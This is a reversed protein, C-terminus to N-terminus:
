ILKDFIQKIKLTHNKWLYNKESIKRATRGLKTREEPNNVLFDIASALQKINQQQVFLCARENKFMERIEPLDTAVIAKSALMFKIVSGPFFGSPEEFRYIGLCIDAASIYYELDVSKLRGLYLVPVKSAEILRQYKKIKAYSGGAIILILDSSKVINLSRLLTNLDHYTTLSGLYFLIKQDPLGHKKRVHHPDRSTFEDQCVPVVSIQQRSAGLCKLREQLVKTPVIMKDSFQIVQKLWEYGRTKELGSHKRSIRNNRLNDWLHEIQDEWFEVVIKTAKEMALRISFVDPYLPFTYFIDSNKVNFFSHLRRTLQKDSASDLGCRIINFFPSVNSLSIFYRIRRLRAYPNKLNLFSTVFYPPAKMNAALMIDYYKQIEELVRNYELYFISSLDYQPSIIVGINPRLDLDIEPSESFSFNKKFNKKRM